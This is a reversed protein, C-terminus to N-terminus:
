WSISIYYLEQTAKSTRWCISVNVSCGIIVSLSVLFFFSSAFGFCVPFDTQQRLGCLFCKCALFLFVGLVACRNLSHHSSATNAFHFARCSGEKRLRYWLRVFLFFRRLIALYDKSRMYTYAYLESRLYKRHPYGYIILQIFSNM